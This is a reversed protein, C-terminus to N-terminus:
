EVFVLKEMEFIMQDVSPFDYDEIVENLNHHLSAYAITAEIDIEIIYSNSIDIGLRNRLATMQSGYGSFWEGVSLPKNWKKLPEYLEGFMDIQEM